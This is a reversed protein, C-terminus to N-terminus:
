VHMWMYTLSSVKVTMYPYLRTGLGEGECEFLVDWSIINHMSLHVHLTLM